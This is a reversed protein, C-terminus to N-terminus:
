CAMITDNLCYATYILIVLAQALDFEVIRRQTRRTARKFTSALEVMPRWLL